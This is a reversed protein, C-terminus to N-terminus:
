DEAGSFILRELMKQDGPKYSPDTWSSDTALGMARQGRGSQKSGKAQRREQRQADPGAHPRPVLLARMRMFETVYIDMMTADGRV